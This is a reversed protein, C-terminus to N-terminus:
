TPSRDDAVVLVPRCSHHVLRRTTAYWHSAVGALRPSAVVLVAGETAAAHAILARDPEYTLLTTATVPVDPAEFRAVADDLRAHRTGAPPAIPTLEVVDVNCTPFTALWAEVADVVAVPLGHADVPVVLRDIGTPPGCNPGVLLVPGRAAGLVAKTTDDFQVDGGYRWTLPSIVLLASDRHAVHEVLQRDASPGAVVVASLPTSAVRQLRLQLDRTATGHPAGSADLAIIELPVGGAVALRQAVALADDPRALDVAAVLASLKMEMPM